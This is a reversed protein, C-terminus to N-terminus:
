NASLSNTSHAVQLSYFLVKAANGASPSNDQCYNGAKFYFTNRRWNPNAQFFDITQSSGNVDLSLRGNVVKIQYTIPNNLGVSAFSLKADKAGNAKVLAEIKGNYFQLKVLPKDNPAYGHIQGIVVKKTSPMQSVVCRANLVHTGYGTWNLNDDAPNLLERLESRPYSSGRTTGGSAPCYFTMAGDPGTNFCSANTYGNVLRATGIESAGTDPLTLKWHTLDFNEGPPKGSDLAWVSFNTLFLLSVLPQRLFKLWVTEM